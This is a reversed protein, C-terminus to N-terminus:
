ASAPELSPDGGDEAFTIEVGLSPVARDLWRPLWWNANGLLEMTAPVLIMRVLTADIFVASALGMGFLKLVRLDGLVFSGFVCVMIAAAATIVRATSALGDAVSSYNDGSHLWEERIRSLLFVEYDMSLGFLITFLMLPIWPEIPGTSSLGFLSKCWGWQFIAVIIGYAAGISLLNMIAAKLPVVVSRFVSMLLLFSLIVVGGIVYPLRRTLHASTDVSAATIGGVLAEVSTGKVVPPIVDDRLRNVLAQTRVDQPSTKPVVLVTAADGSENFQPPAALAVGPDRMLAAPLKEVAARGQGEPLDVAVILPGNFGPGFGHALLDYARRTTMSTSDNGQDSFAQHMGFLPLALVILVLLAAGGLQWPRHQVFRSWRYSYTSEINGEGRHLFRQIGFRDIQPGAFGLMAPLLTVAAIMVMVVAAIAGFAVGYIFSMGLLLMGLLSIVVTTGAFLVARGSTALATVAAHRPTAGGHLTERHRTIIFLAYDIGVGLAIMVAMQPAFSPTTVFRSVFTLIAMGIGLGFLATMIPLGMAILSGFAVLLIVIAALIGFVESSGMEPQEVLAVPQGGAEVQLDRANAAAAADVVAQVPEKDLHGIDDTFTVATYATRADRSIQGAPGKAPDPSVVRAVGPIKALKPELQEIHARNAADTLPKSSHFVVDVTAGSHSPFREQLLTQARASESGDGGFQNSYKAGLAGSVASFAVIAVLWLGLVARRHDFCWGALRGLRSEEATQLTDTATPEPATM